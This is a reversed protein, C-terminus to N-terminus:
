QKLANLQKLVEIYQLIEERTTYNAQDAAYEYIVRTGKSSLTLGEEEGGLKALKVLSKAEDESGFDVVMKMSTVKDGDLDYHFYSSKTGFEIYKDTVIYQTGDAEEFQEINEGKVGLANSGSGGGSGGCASFTLSLALVAALILTKKM